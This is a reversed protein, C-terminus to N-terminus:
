NLTVGLYYYEPIMISIRRLEMEDTIKNHNKVALITHKNPNMILEYGDSVEHLIVLFEELHQNSVTV